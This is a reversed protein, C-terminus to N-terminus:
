FIDSICFTKDYYTDLYACNICITSIKLQKLHNKKTEPNVRSSKGIMYKEFYKQLIIYFFRSM